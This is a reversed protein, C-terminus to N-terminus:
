SRVELKIRIRWIDISIQKQPNYMCKMDLAHKEHINITHSIIYM